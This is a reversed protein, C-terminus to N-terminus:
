RHQHQTDNGWNTFIFLISDIYYIINRKLVLHVTPCNWFVVLDTKPLKMFPIKQAHMIAQQVYLQYM